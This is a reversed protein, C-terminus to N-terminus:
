GEGLRGDVLEVVRDAARSVEPDHTALLVAQGRDALGRLAEVARAASARDLQATPEDAVVVAPEGVAAFALALRQQEGGSLRRPVHDRRHELGLTGLVRGAGTDRGRLRAALALHEAVTLYDLLNDAPDPFVYGVRARRIARRARASLATVETGDIWVRGEEPRELCALIKLLTSKGSGSPGVVATIAGRHVSLAVDSLARVSESHHSPTPYDYGVGECWLSREDRTM